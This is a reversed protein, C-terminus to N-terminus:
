QNLPSCSESVLKGDDFVQEIKSTNTYITRTKINPSAKETFPDFEAQVRSQDMFAAIERAEYVAKAKRGEFAKESAALDRQKKGMAMKRPGETMLRHKLAQMRIDAM